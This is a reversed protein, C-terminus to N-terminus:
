EEIQECTNLKACLIAYDNLGDLVWAVGCESVYSELNDIIACKPVDACCRLLAEIGHESAIKKALRLETSCMPFSFHCYRSFSQEQYDQEDISFHGQMYLDFPAQASQQLPTRTAQGWIFCPSNMLIYDALVEYGAEVGEQTIKNEVRKIIIAPLPFCQPFLSLLSTYQAFAKVGKQNLIKLAQTPNDTILHLLYQQKSISANNM